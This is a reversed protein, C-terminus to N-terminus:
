LDANINKIISNAIIKHANLSLHGDGVSHKFYSDNAIMLEPYSNMLDHFTNIIENNHLIKIFRKSMYEDNNILDVYENTWSLIKCSVGNLELEIFKNKIKNFVQKAHLKEYDELSYNNEYLWKIFIDHLNHMKQTSNNFNFQLLKGNIEIEFPSRMFQTTQFIVYSIDKYNFNGHKFVDNIFDLSDIDSGGNNRKVLEFTDFNNSVLRAYRKIKVYKKHAPSVCDDIYHGPSPIYINPLGSYYYLGQGWTFSDGAFLLGNIKNSNM